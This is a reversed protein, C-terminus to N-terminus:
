GITKICEITIVKQQVNTGLMDSRRFETTVPLSTDVLPDTGPILVDTLQNNNEISELILKELGDASQEATPSDKGDVTLHIEFRIRQDITKWVNTIVNGKKTIVRFRQANTIFINPLVGGEGEGNSHGVNINRVKGEEGTTTYLEINAKLIDAIRTKIAWVDIETVM